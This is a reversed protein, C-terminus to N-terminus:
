LIPKRWTPLNHIPPCPPGAAMPELDGMSRQALSGAGIVVTVLLVPGAVVCALRAAHNTAKAQFAAFMLAFLVALCVYLTDWRFASVFPIEVTGGLFTIVGVLVLPGFLCILYRVSRQSGTLWIAAAIAVITLIVTPPFGSLPRGILVNLGRLFIGNIGEGFVSLLDVRPVPGGSFAAALAEPGTIAQYRGSEALSALLTLMTNLTMLGGVLALVVVTSLNRVLTPWIRGEIFYVALFAYFIAFPVFFVITTTGAVVAALLVAWALRWIWSMRSLFLVPLWVMLGLNWAYGGLVWAYPYVTGFVAVLGAIVSAAFSAKLLSRASVFIGMYLLLSGLVRYIFSGLEPGIFRILLLYLDYVGNALDPFVDGIGSGGAYGHVFTSLSPAAAAALYFQIIGDYEDYWGIASAPGFVWYPYLSALIVLMGLVTARLLEARSSPSPGFPRVFLLAPLSLVAVIATSLWLSM